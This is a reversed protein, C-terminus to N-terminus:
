GINWLLSRRVQGEQPSERRVLKRIEVQNRLHIPLAVSVFNESESIDIVFERVSKDMFSCSKIKLGSVTTVGGAPNAPRLFGRFVLDNFCVEGAEEMTRLEPDRAILGEALWRRIM